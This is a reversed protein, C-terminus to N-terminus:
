GTGGSGGAAGVVSWGAAAMSVSTAVAPWRAQYSDGLQVPIAFDYPNAGAIREYEDYM